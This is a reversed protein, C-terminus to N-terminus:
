RVGVHSIAVLPVPRQISSPHIPRMSARHWRMFTVGALRLRNGRIRWPDASPGALDVAGGKTVSWFPVPVLGSRGFRPATKHVADLTKETALLRSVPPCRAPTYVRWTRRQQGPLAPLQGPSM